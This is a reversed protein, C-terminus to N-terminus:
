RNSFVHGNEFNYGSMEMDRGVREWDIFGMLYSDDVEGLDQYYEEAFDAMTAHEGRYADEFAQVDTDDTDNAWIAYAEGHKEIGAAWVSVKDFSEWEGLRLGYFGEYDHIAWEEAIPEKSAALMKSVETHIDDADLTADIWAGHLRGANYDALSAVYIRIANTM